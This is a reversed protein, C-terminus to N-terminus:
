DNQALSNPDSPKYRYRIFRRHERDFALLGAGHTAVWLTGNQDETMAMIVTMATTSPELEHFSYSTLTNTERDLVSLANPSDHFIWFVGFRDEYFGFGSSAGPIPIHRTFKGTRRDFEDLYGITAVWFRGEKDEGTSTVYNNSLSSPDNANHAYQRITGAAPDLSYLGNPTALWLIGASDQSIDNAFPVPYRIFKETARNFKDLFQDCAVWLAGDRDKFLARVYVGSLSNPNRPDHVFLRFNYGDFRNLGYQTGFWMFGQGGQLIQSVKTQSLGEDTSLRSFRIGEGDVVPVTIPRPEVHGLQVPGPTGPRNDATRGAAGDRAMAFTAAGLLAILSCRVTLRVLITITSQHVVSIVTNTVRDSLGSRRM